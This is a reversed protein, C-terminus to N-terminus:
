GLLRALALLGMVVAVLATGLVSWLRGRGCEDQLMMRSQRYRGRQGLWLAIATVAALVVLGHQQGRLALCAIVVLSIQTRRWALETREAQLGRDHEAM